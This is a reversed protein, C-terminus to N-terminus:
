TKLLGSLGGAWLTTLVWGSVVHWWIRVRLSRGEKTRTDPTWFDGMDFKILPVFKEISYIWANFSPYNRKLVRRGQESQNKHEEDDDWAEDKAPILLKDDFCKQFRNRGFIIIIISPVLAGWPAYGYGICFGLFYYWCISWITKLLDWLTRWSYVLKKIQQWPYAEGVTKLNSVIRSLNGLITSPASQLNKEILIEVADDHLGMKRFVEATQEYPQSFFHKQLRLWKKQTAANLPADADLQDFVFGHLLLNGPNPWHSNNLL